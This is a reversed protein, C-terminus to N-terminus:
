FTEKQLFLDKEKKRWESSIEEAIRDSFSIQQEVKSADKGIYRHDNNLLSNHLYFTNNNIINMMNIEDRKINAGQKALNYAIFEFYINTFYIQRILIKRAIVKTQM